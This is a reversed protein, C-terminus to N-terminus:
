IKPICWICPNTFTQPMRWCAEFFLAKITARQGSLDGTMEPILMLSPVLASQVNLLDFVIAMMQPSCLDTRLCFVNSYLVLLADEQSRWSSLLEIKYSWWFTLDWFIAIRVCNIRIEDIAWIIEGQTSYYMNHDNRKFNLNIKMQM